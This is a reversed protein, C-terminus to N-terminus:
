IYNKLARYPDYKNYNAAYYQLDSKYNKIFQNLDEKEPYNEYLDSLISEIDLYGFEIFQEVYKESLYLTWFACNKDKTKSQPCIYVPDEIEIYKDNMIKQMISYLKNKIKMLFKGINTEKKRSYGLLAEKYTKRNKTFPLDGAPDIYYGKREDTNYLFLSRHAFKPKKIRGSSNFSVYRIDVFFIILGSKAKKYFYKNIKKNSKDKDFKDFNETLYKRNYNRIVKSPRGEPLDTFYTDEYTELAKFYDEKTFAYNIPNEINESDILITIKNSYITINHLSDYPLKDIIYDTSNKEFFRLLSNDDLRKYM